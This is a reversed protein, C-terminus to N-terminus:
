GGIYLKFIFILILKDKIFVTAHTNKNSFYVLNYAHNNTLVM